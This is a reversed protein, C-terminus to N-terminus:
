KCEQEVFRKDRTTKEELGAETSEDGSGGSGDDEADEDGNAPAGFAKVPGSSAGIIGTSGTPSAFSSIGGTLKVSGFGSGSGFGSIPKSAGLGSSTSSLGGFGSAVGSAFPSSAGTNGFGLSSKGNTSDGGFGTSKSVAGGFAGFPSSESRAFASLGSSAFASKSAPKSEGESPQPSGAAQSGFPSVASSNSFGFGKKEVTPASDEKSIETSADRTRKKDPEGKGPQEVTPVIEETDDGSIHVYSEDSQEESLPEEVADADLHDHNRKKQPSLLTSTTQDTIGAVEPPPTAPRPIPDANAAPGSPSVPEPAIIGSQDTGQGEVTDDYPVERSRMRKHHSQPKQPSDPNTGQSDEQLDDFSRKRVPRGRSGQTTIDAEVPQDLSPGSEVVGSKSIASPRSQSLTDISTNRLKERVPKEGQEDDSGEKRNIPVSSTLADPMSATSPDEGGSRPAAATPDSM